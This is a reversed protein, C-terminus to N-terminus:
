QEKDEVDPLLEGRCIWQAMFEWVSTCDENLHVTWIDGRGCGYLYIEHQLDEDRECM